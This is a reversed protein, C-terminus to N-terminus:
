RGEQACLDHMTKTLTREGSQYGPGLSPCYTFHSFGADEDRVDTKIGEKASFYNALWEGHEPPAPVDDRAWWVAVNRTVIERPDFGWLTNTKGGALSPMHRGPPSLLPASWMLDAVFFNWAQYWARADTKPLMDADNKLDYERCIQEGVYPANLGMAVCRDPGFHWAVAMAHATGLSLGEVMFEGVGEAKLIADVDLPFDVILRGPRIDSYGYGPMSPAIGKVNLEECLSAYMQCYAGASMGAGHIHVVVKAHPRKSGYVLYEVIRGDDMTVHRGEGGLRAADREQAAADFPIQGQARRWLGYLTVALWAGFPVGVVAAGIAPLLPLYLFSAAIGGVIWVVLLLTFVTIL